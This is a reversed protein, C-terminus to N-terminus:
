DGDRDVLNFYILTTVGTVEVPEGDIIRPRYRYKEASEVAARVFIPSSSELAVVDKVDGNATITYEVMVWGELERLAARAPYIPAVKVVPLFDSTSSGFGLDGLGSEGFGPM